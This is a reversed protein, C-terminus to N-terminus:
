KTWEAYEVNKGNAKAYEVEAAVGVSKDWGDLMLVRVTHAGDVMAYDIKSWFDWTTPMKHHLAITHNQAIPSFVFEGANLCRATYDVVDYYRQERVADEPHSYPSAIYIYHGM